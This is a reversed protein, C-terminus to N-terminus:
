SDTFLCLDKELFQLKLYGARRVKREEAEDEDGEFVWSFGSLESEM